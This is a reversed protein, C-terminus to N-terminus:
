TKAPTLSRVPRKTQFPDDNPPALAGDSWLEVAAPWIEKLIL